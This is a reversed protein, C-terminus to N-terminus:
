LRIREKERLRGLLYRLISMSVWAVVIISVAGALVPVWFGDQNVHRLGFWVSVLAVFIVYAAILGFSILLCWLSLNKLPFSRQTIM